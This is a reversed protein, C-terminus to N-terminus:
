IKKWAVGDWEWTDQEDNPWGLRGGFMVVRDRKKDYAMYGMARPAPGTDALKKWTEGNWAWTDGVMGNQSLGGFIILLGRKSDFTYGTSLRGGPGAQAVQTWTSGDYEWTDDAKKGPGDGSGGYLVVKKRKTDYVMAFSSRGSPGPVDIRKWARGDWERTASNSVGRSATGGFVVLVNRDSDYVAGGEAMKTEPVEGLSTWKSGELKRIDGLSNNMAFGGVSLVVKQKSDVALSIGSRKDGSIGELKWQTGDFSWTDDYFIFSSEDSTPTSGGVLIVKGLHDAYILAHHARKGPFKQEPNQASITGALAVLFLLSISQKM